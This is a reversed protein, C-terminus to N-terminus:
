PHPVLDQGLRVLIWIVHGARASEMVGRAGNGARRFSLRFVRAFLLGDEELFDAENRRCCGEAVVSDLVQESEGAMHRFAFDRDPFVFKMGSGGVQTFRDIKLVREMVVLRWAPEDGDPM